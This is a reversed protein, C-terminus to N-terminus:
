RQLTKNFLDIYSNASHQWSWDERMGTEVIAKWREKNYNYTDLARDLAAAMADISYSDFRFGNATGAALNAESSDVVTDCLGGTSHAVPVSGYRLSYLQNLGCPEYHSPMLFMDCGAEIQHAVAESFALRAAVKEPHQEALKALAAEYAPDGTGLVAWQIDREAAWRALLPIILDWGKQDALRSVIGIVPVNPDVPLGMQEQLQEKCKAKGPQWNEVSFNEALHKDTAPDWMGYDVGNVIGVLNDGRAALIDGLGCGLEPRTIERSYTPSVTSVTDAFVIGTKLLNLDGHFEMQEWNFFRWEMGTLPVDMHWFRGQYALNHITHVSKAKDMWPYHGHRTRIYAPILGAQWDHSHAIDIDLGLRDIAEVTARCFFSFRECNDKYEGNADTYLGDRDFYKPQDILYVDVTSGPLQTKLLRCAVHQGRIYITFAHDTPEIPLGSQMVSRYAPLFCTCCCGAAELAVPLAGGVDGLGGTKALPVMESSITAVHLQKVSESQQALPHTDRKQGASSVSPM